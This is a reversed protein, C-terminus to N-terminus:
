LGPKRYRGFWKTQKFGLSRYLDIARTPYEAITALWIDEIGRARLTRLAMCVLARGLGRGRWAPRISVQDIEVRTGEVLAIVQGAIEQGEWAVFFLGPDFRAEAYKETYFAMRDMRSRYRDGPFENLYSEILSEALAPIHEKRFPRVEIGEPLPLSANPAAPDLTMEVTTYGIKYGGHELLAQADEQTESANAAFEFREGPHESAALNRIVDEAWELFASGIGQGRWEPLVWGLHLYVWVGDEEYWSDASRCYGVVQGQVEALRWRDQTNSALSDIVIEKVDELSPLGDNASRRDVRDFSARGIHVAYIGEADDPSHLARLRIGAPLFSQSIIETM